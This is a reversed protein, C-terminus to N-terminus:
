YPPQYSPNSPHMFTNTYILLYVCTTSVLHMSLTTYRHNTPHMSLSYRHNSLYTENVPHKKLNHRVLSPGLEHDGGLIRGAESPSPEGCPQRRARRWSARADPAARRTPPSLPTLPPSPTLPYPTSPTSPNTYLPDPSHCCFYHNFPINDDGLM